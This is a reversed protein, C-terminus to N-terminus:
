ALGQAGLAVAAPDRTDSKEPEKADSTAEDVISKTRANMDTPRKPKTM